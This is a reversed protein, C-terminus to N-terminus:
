SEKLQGSIERGRVFVRGDDPRRADGATAGRDAYLFTKGKGVKVVQAHRGGIQVGEGVALGEIAKLAESVFDFVKM